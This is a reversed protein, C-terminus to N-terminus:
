LDKIESWLAQLDDDQLARKRVQEKDGVSWARKFWQRANDLQNMQCAYCSLNYAILEVKPFKEAAPLLAKWAEELGGGAVRRLAYAQHLWGSSKEPAVELLSRAVRLGGQWDKEEAAIAWRVELVNPHLQLEPKLQNLEAKAEALNGLELWGVAHLLYHTDPYDLQPM